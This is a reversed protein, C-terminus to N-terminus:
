EAWVMYYMTVFKEAEKRNTFNWMNWAMRNAKSNNKLHETVWDVRQDLKGIYDSISDGENKYEIRVRIHGTIMKEIVPVVEPGKNMQWVLDDYDPNLQRLTHLWDSM